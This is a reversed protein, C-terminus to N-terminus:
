LEKGARMEALRIHMNAGLQAIPAPPLRTPADAALARDLAPSTLGLSLDAALGGALTGKATGLGNQCCASYLGEDLAG